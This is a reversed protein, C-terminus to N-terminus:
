TAPNIGFALRGFRVHALHYEPDFKFTRGDLSDVLFGKPIQQGWTAPFLVLNPFPHPEGDETFKLNLDGAPFMGLRILENKTLKRLISFDKQEESSM